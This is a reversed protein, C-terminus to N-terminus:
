EDFPDVQMMWVGDPRKVTMVKLEDRATSVTRSSIGAAGCKEYVIKSEVYVGTCIERILAKAATVKSRGGADRTAGAEDSPDFPNGANKIYQVELDVRRYIFHDAKPVLLSGKECTVVVAGHNTPHKRCVMQGRHSNRFQVSGIGVQSADEIKGKKFHRLDWFTCGTKSAVVNLIEMVRLVDLATNADKVINQCFYMFADVICLKIGNDEITEEVLRLGDRDFVIDDGAFLIMGPVGGNALYVTMLEEDTDERKHMYLTKVPGEPLPQFDLPHLGRSMAATWALALSTKGVGGDGDLLICKGKPLYPEALYEPNSWGQAMDPQRVTLGRKPMLDLRKVFQTETFGAEFHDFGDDHEGTTASQVVEVYAAVGKLQSAIYAAYSEGTEDRDAIIIVKASKFFKTHEPLWKSGPNDKHAGGPQCTATLGKTRLRDVAKEGECIYVTKGSRMAQLLDAVRYLMKSKGNLSSLDKEYAGLGLEIRQFFNKKGDKGLFRVKEFVYKGDLDYYKYVTQTGNTLTREIASIRRDDEEMNLASLIASESCGAQCKVHLWGDKEWVAFSPSDDEHAPCKASVMRCGDKTKVKRKDPDLRGAFEDLTM